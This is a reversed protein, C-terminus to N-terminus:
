PRWGNFKEAEPTMTKAGKTLNTIPNSIVEVQHHHLSRIDLIHRSYTPIWKGLLVYTTISQQLSDLNMLGVVTLQEANEWYNVDM